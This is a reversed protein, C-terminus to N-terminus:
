YKEDVNANCMIHNTLHKYVLNESGRRCILPVLDGIGMARCMARKNTPRMTASTLAFFLFVGGAAAFLGAASGPSMM